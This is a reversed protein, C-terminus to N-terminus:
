MGRDFALLRRYRENTRALEDPAGDLAVQGDEIFVVRDMAEIGQLHHTILILTRDAFADLLTSLLSQETIPDLGAFPEDLLVIPADRLLARALAIRHREGGSFRLGGEDVMTDLGQPLRELLPGLGVRELADQAEQRNADARGVCLNDYLTTNFLYTEQQIVSILDPMRDALTQASTGGLEVAGNSPACDGHILRALTSKGAGSRGLIAIHQGHPIALSVGRLTERAAGPYAFHADHLEINWSNPTSAGNLPLVNAPSSSQAPSPGDASCRTNDRSNPSSPRFADSQPFVGGASHRTNECSNLGGPRLNDSQTPAIDCAANAEARDGDMGDKELAQMRDIAALYGRGESAAASLSAFQEALPFFGLVFAAIWVTAGTAVGDAGGFRAGAWVLVAVATLGFSLRVIADRRQDFRRGAHEEDRALKESEPGHALYDDRRGSCVWDAIGLVSDTLSAYRAAKAARRREEHPGNVLLSAIPAAIVSVACGLGFALALAPSLAGAVCLVILYLAWAIVTPFVSRLYLNQLHGIDEALASLVEGTQPGSGGRATAVRERRELAEYLRLRLQSTMRLVWDHSVLRELYALIPKGGGFIRVWIIPVYLLLISGRALAAGSILYGSVFMLACAFAAAALGLLLALTLPARYAGLFPKIWALRVQWQSKM